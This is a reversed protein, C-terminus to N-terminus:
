NFSSRFIFTLVDYWCFFFFHGAPAEVKQQVIIILIYGVALQIWGIWIGIRWGSDFRFEARRRRFISGVHHHCVSGWLRRRRSSSTFSRQFEITFFEDYGSRRLMCIGHHDVVVYDCLQINLMRRGIRGRQHVNANRQRPRRRRRRRQWGRFDILHDFVRRGIFFRIDTGDIKQVNKFM